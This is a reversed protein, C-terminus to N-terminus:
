VGCFLMCKNSDIRKNRVWICLLSIQSFLNALHWGMKPYSHIITKNRRINRNRLRKHMTKTVKFKCVTFNVRETIGNKYSGDFDLCPLTEDDCVERKLRGQM